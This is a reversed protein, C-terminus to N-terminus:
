QTMEKVIMTFRAHQRDNLMDIEHRIDRIRRCQAEDREVAHARYAGTANQARERIRRRHFREGVWRAALRQIREENTVM